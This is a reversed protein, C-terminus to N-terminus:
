WVALKDAYYDIIYWDNRNHQRKSRGYSSAFV